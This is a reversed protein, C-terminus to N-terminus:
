SIEKVDVGLSEAFRGLQEDSVWGDGKLRNYLYPKTVNLQDAWAYQTLGKEKLIAKIKVTQEETLKPM